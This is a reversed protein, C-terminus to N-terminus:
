VDEGEVVAQLTAPNGWYSMVIRSIPVQCKEAARHLVETMDDGFDVITQNYVAVHKDVYQQIDLDFGRQAKKRMTWAADAMKLSLEGAADASKGGFISGTVEAQDISPILAVSM